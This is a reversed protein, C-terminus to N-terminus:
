SEIPSSAFAVQRLHHMPLNTHTDAPFHNGALDDYSTIESHHQQWHERGGPEEGKMSLPVDTSYPMLQAYNRHMVGLQLLQHDTATQLGGEEIRYPRDCSDPQRHRYDSVHTSPATTSSSSRKLLSANSYAHVQSNSLAAAQCHASTTIPGGPNSSYLRGESSSSPVLDGIIADPYPYPLNTSVQCLGAQSPAHQGSASAYTSSGNFLLKQQLGLVIDTMSTDCAETPMNSTPNYAVSQEHVNFPDHSLGITHSPTVHEHYHHPGVVHPQPPPSPTIQFSDYNAQQQSNNCSIKHDMNSQYLQFEAAAATATAPTVHQACAPVPFNSPLGNPPAISAQCEQYTMELSHTHQRSSHPGFDPSPTQHPSLATNAFPSELGLAAAHAVLEAHYKEFVDPLVRLSFNIRFLFEVELSNMESVLVGGVKAYYANNYYADDFFKAALLVATIVV